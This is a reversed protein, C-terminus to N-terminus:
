AVVGEASALQEATPLFCTVITTVGHDDRALYVVGSEPHRRTEGEFGAINVPTADAFEREIRTRPYPDPAVREVYRQIVHRSVRAMM